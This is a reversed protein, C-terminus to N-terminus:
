RSRPLHATREIVETEAHGIRRGEDGHLLPQLQGADARLALFPHFATVGALGLEPDSIRVVRKPFDVGQVLVDVMAPSSLADFLHQGMGGPCLWPGFNSHPLM